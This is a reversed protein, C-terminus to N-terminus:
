DSVAATRGAQDDAALWHAAPGQEARKANLRQTDAIAQHAAAVADAAPAKGPPEEDPANFLDRLEASSADAQAERFTERDAQHPTLVGLLQQEATMGTVDAV